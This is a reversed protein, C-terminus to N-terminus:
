SHAGKVPFIASKEYPFKEWAAIGNCGDEFEERFTNIHSALMMCFSDALLCFSKGGINDILDLMKDVDGPKGKGDQIDRMMQVLFWSGERCPTCKGCSEHKFFSLYNFAARVSSTTEDFFQVAKSGLMTKKAGLSEYDMTVDLDADTLIPSSAGGPLWFKVRHGDRVGGALELLERATISMPAEFQGPRKVHGSVSYITYGKSKETGLRGFYDSGHSLISTVSAITEVNNVITPSKYLGAVAPFPPKLRPQGRTGELASLLATEEGCIYAGAGAHVTLELRFDKGMVKEGLYGREYAEAVAQQLRRIVHLVEGRCYIFAHHCDIALCTIIIGEILTHPTAMMLPIDKCTGPESEDANVVLYVPNPNGKPLFGWKIGAAFGAGGRGRLNATKVTDIIEQPQMPLANKLGEYGGRAIYNDIKWAQEDAWNATLVPTLQTTM